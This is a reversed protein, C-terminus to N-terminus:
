EALSGLAAADEVTLKHEFRLVAKALTKEQASAADSALIGNLRAQDEATPTHAIGAIADAIARLNDSVTADAAVENLAAKDAESPFHNMGTLIDALTSATHGDAWAPMGAAICLVFTISKLHRYM